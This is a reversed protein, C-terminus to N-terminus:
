DYQVRLGMVWSPHGSSTIVLTDGPKAVYDTEAGGAIIGYPPVSEDRVIQTMISGEASQVAVQLKGWGAKNTGRSKGFVTDGCAVEIGTVKKGPKLQVFIKDGTTKIEPYKNSGNELYTKFPQDATGGVPISNPYGWTEQGNFNIPKYREGMDGASGFKVGRTFIFEAYTTSVGKEPYGVLEIDHINTIAKSPDGEGRGILLVADVDGSFGLDYLREEEPESSPRPEGIKTGLSVWKQTARDRVMIETKAPNADRENFTGGKDVLYSMNPDLKIWEGSNRRQVFEAGGEKKMEAPKVNVYRRPGRNPYWLDNRKRHQLVVNRLKGVGDPTDILIAEGPSVALGTGDQPGFSCEAKTRSCTTMTKRDVIKIGLMKELASADIEPKSTTESTTSDHATEAEVGAKMGKIMKILFGDGNKADDVETLVAAGHNEVAKVPALSDSSSLDIVPNNAMGLDAYRPDTVPVLEAWIAAVPHAQEPSKLTLESFNSATSDGGKSRPIASVSDYKTRWDITEATEPDILLNGWMAHKTEVVKGRVPNLVFVTGDQAKQTSYGAENFYACSKAAAQQGDALPATCIGVGYMPHKDVKTGYDGPPIQFRNALISAARTADTGHVVLNSADAISGTPDFTDATMVGKVIVGFKKGHTESFGQRLIDVLAKSLAPPVERLTVTDVPEALGLKEAHAAFRAVLMEAYAKVKPQDTRCRFPGVSEFQEPNAEAKSNGSQSAAEVLLKFYDNTENTM